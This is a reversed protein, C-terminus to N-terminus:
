SASPSNSSNRNQPQTINKLSIHFPFAMPHFHNLHQIDSIQQESHTRALNIELSRLQNLRASPISTKTLSNSCTYSAWIGLSLKFSLGEQGKV